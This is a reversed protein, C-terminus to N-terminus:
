NLPRGEPAVVAVAEAITAVRSADEFRPGLALSWQGSADATLTFHPTLGDGLLADFRRRVAGGPACLSLWLVHRGLRERQARSGGHALGRGLDFMARWLAAHTAPDARSTPTMRLSRDVEAVLGEVTDARFAVTLPDAGHVLVRVGIQNPPV